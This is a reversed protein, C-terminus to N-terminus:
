TAAERDIAATRRDFPRDLHRSKVLAFSEVMQRARAGDRRLQGLRQGGRKGIRVPSRWYCIARAPESRNRADDLAIRLREETFGLKRAFGHLPQVRLAPLSERIAALQQLRAGRRPQDAAAMAVG